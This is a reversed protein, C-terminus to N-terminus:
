KLFTKLRKVEEALLGENAYEGHHRTQKGYTEKKMDLHINVILDAGKTKAYIHFRPYGSSSFPYIFSMEEGAKRQFIYGAQRLLSISNGKIDKVKIQM